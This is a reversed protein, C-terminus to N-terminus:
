DSLTCITITTAQTESSVLEAPWEFLHANAAFSLDDGGDRDCLGPGDLLWCQAM